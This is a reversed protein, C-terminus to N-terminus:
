GLVQLGVMQEHRNGSCNGGCPKRKKVGRELLIEALANVWKSKEEPSPIGRAVNLAIRLAIIDKEDVVPLM